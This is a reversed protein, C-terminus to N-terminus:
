RFEVEIRLFEKGDPYAIPVDLPTEEDVEPISGKILWCIPFLMLAKKKKSKGEYEIKSDLPIFGDGDAGPGEAFISFIHLKVYGPKGIAGPKRIELIEAFATSGKRVVTYNTGVLDKYKFDEAAKCQVTDGTKKAFVAEMSPPFIKLTDSKDKYIRFKASGALCAPCIAFILLASVLCYSIHALVRNKAFQTFLKIIGM